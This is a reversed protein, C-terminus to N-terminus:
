RGEGVADGRLGVGLYAAAYLGNNLLAAYRATESGEAARITQVRVGHGEATVTLRGRQERVSADEAGDDLVLLAPRATAPDDDYPDAFLDRTPV